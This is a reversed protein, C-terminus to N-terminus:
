EKQIAFYKQFRRVTHVEIKLATDCTLLESDVNFESLGETSQNNDITGSVVVAAVPLLTVGFGSCNERSLRNLVQSPRHDYKLRRILILETAIRM